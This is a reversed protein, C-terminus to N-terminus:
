GGAFRERGSQGLYVAHVEASAMVEHPSGSMLVRGSVLVIVTTAFRRVIQMDHEIMLIAIEAPLSGLADFLWAAEATPVGAMPEDLLLVKPELSLAIAIEVLRQRGYALDAVKRHTDAALGLRAIVQEAGDLLDRRRSARAFMSRSARRHESVALFVNEIVTLGRFLNNIQFTRVLGHAVRRAPPEATIDHGMMLIRGADPALVGSLLGVLSTKGAGNPGILAHRAGLPLRLGIDEAVVLGGFSKGLGVTELALTSM